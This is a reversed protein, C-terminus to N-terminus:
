VPQQDRSRGVCEASRLRAVLLEPPAGFRIPIQVGVGRAVYLPFWPNPVWGSATARGCVRSMTLPAGYLPLVIQGGHTHGSLVLPEGLDPSLIRVGDPNHSLV